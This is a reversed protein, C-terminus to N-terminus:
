SLTQGPNRRRIALVRDKDAFDKHVCYQSEPFFRRALEMSASGLSSEIELLVCGGPALRTQAQALLRELFRMGDPGGDLAIRPEFRNVPLNGLVGTPIYPLNACVLDFPGRFPALLDAQVLSIRGAVNHRSANRAAV